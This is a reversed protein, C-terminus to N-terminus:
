VPVRAFRPLQIDIWSVFGNLRSLRATRRGRREAPLVGSLKSFRRSRMTRM